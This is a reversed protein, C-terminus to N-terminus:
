RQAQKLLRLALRKIHLFVNVMSKVTRNHLANLLISPVHGVIAVKTISHYIQSIKKCTLNHTEGALKKCLWQFQKSAVTEEDPSKGITNFCKIADKLNLKGEKRYDYLEYVSYTSM